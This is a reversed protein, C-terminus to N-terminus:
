LKGLTRLFAVGRQFAPTHLCDFGLHAWHRSKVADAIFGAYTVQQVETLVKEAEHMFDLTLEPLEAYGGSPSLYGLGRKDPKWGMIEAIAVRMAEPTMEVKSENM